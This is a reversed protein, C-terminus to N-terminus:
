NKDHQEEGQLVQLKGSRVFDEVDSWWLYHTAGRVFQVSQGSPLVIPGQEPMSDNEEMVRVLVRDSNLPPFTAHARLDDVQATTSFCNQLYSSQLQRYEHLFDQEAPALNNNSDDSSTDNHEQWYMVQQIRKLREWHYTLLCQKNRRIAADQLLISPRVQISAKKDGNSSAATVQDQLAQVHLSLDELCAAVTVDNYASIDDSRKLELLLDRGYRGYNM